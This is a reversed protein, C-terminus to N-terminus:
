VFPQSTSCPLRLVSVAGADIGMMDVTHADNFYGYISMKEISYYGYFSM